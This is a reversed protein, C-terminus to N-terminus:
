VRNRILNPPPPPHPRAVAGRAETPERYRVRTTCCGDWLRVFRNKWVRVSVGFRPVHGFSCREALTVRENFVLSFSCRREANVAGRDASPRAILRGVSIAAFLNRRKMIATAGSNDGGNLLVIDCRSGLVRRRVITSRVRSCHTRTRHRCVATRFVFYIVNSPEDRKRIRFEAFDRVAPPYPRRM